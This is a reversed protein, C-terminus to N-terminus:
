MSLQWRLFRVDHGAFLEYGTEVLHAASASPPPHGAARRVIVLPGGQGDLFCVVTADQDM